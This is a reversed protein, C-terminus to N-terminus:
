AKEEGLEKDVLALALYLRDALMDAQPRYIVRDSRLRGIVPSLLHHLNGLLDADATTGHQLAWAKLDKM